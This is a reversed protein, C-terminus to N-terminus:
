KKKSLLAAFPNYTDTDRNNDLYKRTDSDQDAASATKLSIRKKDENVEMIQVKLKQGVSLKERPNDRTGDGKLESIHILGDVGSELSVFAGFDTVRVVTGEHRSDLPYRDKAGEWPDALLAKTSLSIRETKWDIKLIEAEIEQGVTLVANIDEVRSRGIESVPLLAQFGGIDVFAGYEQISVITGTVKQGKALTGKLKEIQDSRAEEMLARQSVLINRGGNKYETIRFSLKKGIQEAANESKKLGMQSYPCFARAGGLKIEYGGKIEKEVVGEVPIRNHYANEIMSPEAKEGGIRTTFRMEGNKAQLFFVKIVDGEKATFKGDKDMIEATDLIGESKGSLQLFVSDGSISVIETEIQQGPQLKDMKALSKEFLSAFDQANGNNKNEEM